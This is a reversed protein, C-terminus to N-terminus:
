GDGGDTGFIVITVRAPRAIEIGGRVPLTGPSKRLQEHIWRGDADSAARITVRADARRALRGFGALRDALAPSRARVAHDDMDLTLREASALLRIQRQMPAVGPHSADVIEARDLMLQAGGWNERAIANNALAIYREVIREKGAQARPLHPALALARGFHMHANDDAPTLLRNEALAREAEALAALAAADPEAPPATAAPPPAPPAVVPPPAAQPKCGWAGGLLVGGFGAALARACALRWKPKDPRQSVAAEHIGQTARM